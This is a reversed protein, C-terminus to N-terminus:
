HRQLQLRAEAMQRKLLAEKLRLDLPEVEAISITSGFGLFQIDDDDEVNAPLLRAQAQVLHGSVDANSAPTDGGRILAPTRPLPLERTHATAPRQPISRYSTNNSSRRRMSALRVTSAPLRLFDVSQLRTTRGTPPHCSRRALCFTRMLVVM